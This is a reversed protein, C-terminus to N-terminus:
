WEDRLLRASVNSDAQHKKEVKEPVTAAVLERQWFSQNDPLKAARCLAIYDAVAAALEASSVPPSQCRAQWSSLQQEYQTFPFEAKLEEASASQWLRIREAVYGAASDSNRLLSAFIRQANDGVDKAASALPDLPM